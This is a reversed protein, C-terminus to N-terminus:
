AKLRTKRSTASPLLARAEPPWTRRVVTVRFLLVGPFSALKAVRPEDHTPASLCCRGEDAASEVAFSALSHLQVAASVGKAENGTFSCTTFAVNTTTNSMRVAGGGQATYCM